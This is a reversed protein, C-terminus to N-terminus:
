KLGKRVSDKLTDSISQFTDRVAENYKIQAEFMKVMADLETMGKDENPLIPAM